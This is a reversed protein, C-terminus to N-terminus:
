FANSTVFCCFSLLCIPQTGIFLGGPSVSFDVYAWAPRTPRPVFCLSSLPFANLSPDKAEVEWCYLSAPWRCGQTGESSLVLNPIVIYGAHCWSMSLMHRLDSNGPDWWFGETESAFIDGGGGDGEKNLVELDSSSEWNKQLWPGLRPPKTKLKWRGSKNEWLICYRPFIFVYSIWAEIQKTLYNHFHEIDTSLTPFLRWTQAETRVPWPGCEQAIWEM